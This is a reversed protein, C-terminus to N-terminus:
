IFKSTDDFQALSNLSENQELRHQGLIMRFLIDWGLSLVVGEHSM